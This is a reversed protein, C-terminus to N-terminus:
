RPRLVRCATPSTSGTTSMKTSLCSRIARSQGSHCRQAAASGRSSAPRPSRTRTAEGSKMRRAQGVRVGAPRGAGGGARARPWAPRAEAEGVEQDPVRPVHHDVGAHRPDQGPEAVDEQGVGEDLRQAGDLDGRDEAVLDPWM